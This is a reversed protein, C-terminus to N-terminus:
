GNLWFRCLETKVKKKWGNELKANKALPTFVNNMRVSPTQGSLQKRVLPSEFGICEMDLDENDSECINSGESSINTSRTVPSSADIYVQQAQKLPLTSPVLTM